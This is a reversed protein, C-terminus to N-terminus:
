EKYEYYFELPNPYKFEYKLEKVLKDSRVVKYKADQTENLEPPNFSFRAGNQLYIEERTPHQPAVVNYLKNWKNQAIVQEIVMIADDRHIYNIKSKASQLSRLPMRYKGPIRDFGILGGLRLVTCDLPICRRMVSEALLLMKAMRSFDQKVETGESVDKNNNPYVSTSSIYITKRVSVKLIEDTLNEMQTAHFTDMKGTDAASPPIDVILVDSDLFDAINGKVQPLLNILFPEMGKARLGDLKEKHTTSGKVSYGKSVLYEGLATGLWGCGLISVRKNDM